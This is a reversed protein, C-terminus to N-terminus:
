KRACLRLPAFIAFFFATTFFNVIYTLFIDDGQREKRGKGSETKARM